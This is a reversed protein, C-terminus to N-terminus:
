KLMDDYEYTPFGNSHSDSDGRRRNEASTTSPMISEGVRCCCAERSGCGESNPCGNCRFGSM